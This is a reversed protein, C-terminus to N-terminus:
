DALTPFRECCSLVFTVSSRIIRSDTFTGVVIVSQLRRCASTGSTWGLRVDSPERAHGSGSPPSDGVVCGGAVRM